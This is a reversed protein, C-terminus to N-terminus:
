NEKLDDLCTLIFEVVEIIVKSGGM